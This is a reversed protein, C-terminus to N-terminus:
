GNAKEYAETINAPVRGRDSVEYGNARAWERIKATNGSTAATRGGAVRARGRGAARSSVKRAAQVYTGLADRLKAANAKNLDIEYSSGDLAFLVTEDADGGDLDDELIVVQRQAV